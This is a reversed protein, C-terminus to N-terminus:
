EALEKTVEILQDFAKGWGQEFGMEAHRQRDAGDKHLARATYRTGGDHEEFTVIATFFPKPAPRYGPLLTDTFVLKEHKVVELFCGVNNFDQGEPSRMVSRFIGGPRLDLECDVTRWPAPTFWKKLHEPETWAKWMLRRPVKVVRTLVLDLEGDLKEGAMDKKGPM